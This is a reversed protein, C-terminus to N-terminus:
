DIEESDSLCLKKMYGCINIWNNISLIKKYIFNSVLSKINIKFSKVQIQGIFGDKEFCARLNGINSKNFWFEDFDKLSKYRTVQDQESERKLEFVAFHSKENLSFKSEIITSNSKNSLNEINLKKLVDDDFM